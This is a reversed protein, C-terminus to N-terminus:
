GRDNTVRAVFRVVGKSRHILNKTDRVSFSWRAERLARSSALPNTWAILVSLLPSLFFSCTVVHCLNLREAKFVKHSITFSRFM